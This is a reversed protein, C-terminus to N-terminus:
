VGNAQRQVFEDYSEGTLREFLGGWTQGNARPAPLDARGWIARGLWLKLLNGHEAQKMMAGYHKACKPCDMAGGLDRLLDPDRIPPTEGGTEKDALRKSVREIREEISRNAGM